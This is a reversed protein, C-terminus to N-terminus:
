ASADMGLVLKKLQWWFVASMHSDMDNVTSELKVESGALVILTENAEFYENTIGSITYPASNDLGSFIIGDDVGGPASYGFDDVLTTRYLSLQRATSVAVFLSQQGLLEASSFGFNDKLTLDMRNGHNQLTASFRLRGAQPVRYAVGCSAQQVVTMRPDIGFVAEAAYTMSNNDFAVDNILQGTVPLARSEDRDPGGITFVDYQDFPARFEDEPLPAAAIEGWDLSVESLAPRFTESRLKRLERIYARQISRWAKYNPFERALMRQMRTRAANKLAQLQVTDGGARVSAKRWEGKVREAIRAIRRLDGKSFLRRFQREYERALPEHARALRAAEKKYRRRLPQGRLSSGKRARQDPKPRKSM